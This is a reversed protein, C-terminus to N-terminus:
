SLNQPNLEVFVSAKQNKKYKDVIEFIQATTEEEKEKNLRMLVQYRYKTQIRTIPSKMAQAYIFKEPNSKLLYKIDYYILKTLEVADTEREASVLVRLIAAFPPFHTIERLNSEKRYFGSYDYAKAFRYIYHKPSYTQLIVKGAREARGSRGAVQTVLQFTREASRYDSNYLSIDADLIGALTVSPFDHGKAIMQTGVLIDAEKKAFRTLIDAYAEKTNTTDSDMRLIKAEPYLKKLEDATKETGSKGLRFEESKCQPCKKLVHYRKGCYHCKLENDERHYTLAVDCDECKAVYGCSRCMFFSSYGRRNIFLIAQNGEKLCLELNEQLLSSFMGTNGGRLERGMDVIEIPPMNQGNIRDPLSILLYEGTQARYFSEISPTASGLVLAAKNEKARFKAVDLTNYRPNSESQYSSDHEEDIVIIGVNSLPAFVASRAGIAIVAEGRKLRRWEDYREGDSLGSHLLAVKEGFRERFQRLTKPTLSIEPVLMIASRGEEVVHEIATLYVETKGSGTVGHLLSVKESQLVADVAMKQRDTLQVKQSKGRIERMPTRYTEESEKQVYGKALLGSLASKNEIEASFLVGAQQIKLFLAAQAKAKKSLTEVVETEDIEDAIRYSTVIKPKIRGGRLKSPLFLRLIDIKRLYYKKQMYQMLALMEATIPNDIVERISKLPSYESKEKLGVVYGEIEGTRWPVFVRSGELVDEGAEYDFVKDVDSNAIDVIVEAVM